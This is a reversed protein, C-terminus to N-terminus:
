HFAAGVSAFRPWNNCVFQGLNQSLFDFVRSFFIKTHLVGNSFDGSTAKVM